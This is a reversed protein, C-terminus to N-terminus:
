IYTSYALTPDIILPMSRDYLGVSFGLRHPGRVVFKGAMERRQGSTEQYVRPKALVIKGASGLSLVIDGKSDIILRRDGQVQIAIAEPNAGPAIEFDFELGKSSGHFVADVGPYVGQYAAGAYNPVNTHWQKPDNGLFYNSKARLLNRGAIVAGSSQTFKLRVVSPPRSSERPQALSLVAESETLFLTYGAGRSLFKVRADSQGENAEFTMPLGVFTQMAQVAGGPPPHENFSPPGQALVPTALTAVVFTLWKAARGSQLYAPM